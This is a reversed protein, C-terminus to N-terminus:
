EMENDEVALFLMRYDEDDYYIFLKNSEIEFHTASNLAKVYENHLYELDFLVTPNNYTVFEERVDFEIQNPENLSFCADIEASHTTTEMHFHGACNERDQSLAVNKLRLFLPFEYDEINDHYGGQYFTSHIWRGKCTIYSFNGTESEQFGVFEWNGFIGFDGEVPTLDFDCLPDVFPEKESEEAEEPYVEEVHQDDPLSQEACGALSCAFILYMLYRM